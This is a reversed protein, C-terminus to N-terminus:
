KMLKALSKNLAHIYGKGFKLDPEMYNGEGWENWSKLFVIQREETKKSISGFVEDAHKEFLTPTSNTYLYGGSGSRPTHDWNPILTPFVDENNKELDGIFSHFIKSYDYKRPIGLRSKISITIRKIINNTNIKEGLRCSCVADFGLAKIENYCKDANLTYGIFFIGDLKNDKALRNWLDIFEKVGRFLLPQYIVFVPKNDIRIYRHDLFADLLSYFHERNENEGEYIQEVLVQKNVSGDNKWFKRHWSENAWCLCFPFDPSKTKLVEKFPMDLEEAGKKFWYHYYCFGEIGAEKALEAQKNRVEPIRLDYFGLDAPIKPQYHGPFLRKAKAVNTWETFGEGWWENNHPTPHYQPLYFAIVKPRSM